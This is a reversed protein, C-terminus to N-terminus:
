VTLCHTLPATSYIYVCTGMELSASRVAERGCLGNARQYYVDSEEIRNQAPGDEDDDDDIALSAAIAMVINLLGLWTRRIRTFNNRKVEFYTECFAQEHIFPLLQGTKLFYRRILTWTRSESPLAYINIQSQRHRHHHRSFANDDTAPRSRSVNMMSGEPGPRPKPEPGPATGRAIARSIHRMFAINSSPGPYDNLIWAHMMCEPLFLIRPGCMGFFGSDEEDTFNIAGMGDIPNECADVEGLEQNPHLSAVVPNPEKATEAAAAAPPADRRSERMPRLFEEIDKVRRELHTVYSSVSTLSAPGACRM